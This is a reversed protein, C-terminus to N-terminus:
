DDGKTTDDTAAIDNKSRAFPDADVSDDSLDRTSICGHTLANECKKKTQKKSTSV